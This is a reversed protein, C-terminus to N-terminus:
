APFEKGSKIAENIADIVFDEYGKRVFGVVKDKEDRIEILPLYEKIFYEDLVACIKRVM